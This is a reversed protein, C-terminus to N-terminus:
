NLGNKDPNHRKLQTLTLYASMSM